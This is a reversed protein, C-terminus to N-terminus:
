EAILVAGARNELQAQRFAHALDDASHRQDLLVYPIQWARVIPEAFVPCSDGTAGQSHAYYGRVGVIFVLPVKLDHVVNRLADGAEFLGTCQLVVIPNKGGLYLGAALAFAEGERCVRLLTIGQAASLAAEWTGLETDPIWIVHTIGCGQLAAVISPGDFMPTLPRPTPTLVSYM